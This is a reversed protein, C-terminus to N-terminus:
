KRHFQKLIDEIDFLLAIPRGHPCTYPMETMELDHLLKKIQDLEMPHNVKIANRCSMMIIIDDYKDQLSHQAEDRALAAAIERVVAEHDHAKLIAPVSRLLFGNTGFPEM